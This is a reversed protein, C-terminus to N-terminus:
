IHIDKVSDILNDLYDASYERSNELKSQTKPTDKIATSYAKAEDLTFIGKAKWNSLVSNLYPIPSTKGASLSSAYQILEDSLNWENKWLDYNKRDYDNVKRSTGLIELFEKIKEDRAQLSSVHEIISEFSIIGKEYLGQIVGDLENYSRKDSKFCYKALFLISDPLYGIGTWKAIYNGIIGDLSEFYLSLEKTVKKALDFLENKSKFYEDIESEAYKKRVYLQTVVDDLKNLSGHKLKKAVYVIIKSDFGYDKTWKDFLEVGEMATLVENLEPYKVNYNGIEKEVGDATLIGKLAFDRAVKIVYRYSINDGKVNICHQVIMLLADPKLHYNEMISYYESYENPSIMRGKILQQLASSFDKYKDIKIKVPKQFSNVVPLFRIEPPTLSLVDCLGIDELVEFCDLVRKEDLKLSSAFSQLNFDSNPLSCLFLGFMYVKVVDGDLEPMYECVFLNEVNTYSKISYEQSFSCFSM